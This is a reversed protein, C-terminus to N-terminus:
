PVLSYVTEKFSLVWYSIVIKCIAKVNLWVVIPIHTNNKFLMKYTNDVKVADRFVYM